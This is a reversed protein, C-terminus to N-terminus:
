KVIRPALVDKHEEPFPEIWFKQYLGTAKDFVVAFTFREGFRSKVGSPGVQYALNKPDLYRATPEGLLARLESETMDVFVGRKVFDYILRGRGEPGEAAWKAQDFNETGFPRLREPDQYNVRPSFLFILRFLVVLGLLSFGIVKFINVGM